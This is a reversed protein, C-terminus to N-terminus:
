IAAQDGTDSATAMPRAKQTPSIARDLMLLAEATAATVTLQPFRRQAQATMSRAARGRGSCEARLLRIGLSRVMEEIFNRHEIANGAAQGLLCVTEYRSGDAATKIRRLLSRLEDASAPMPQADVVGDVCLAVGGSVGPVVALVAAAKMAKAESEFKYSKM